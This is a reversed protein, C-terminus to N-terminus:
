PTEKSALALSTAAVLATSDPTAAVALVRFGAARALDATEVGICVAGFARVDISEAQGLSVLGRVTSGSTFIAAAIPGESSASRLLPRSTEPAERTRYAVVDDIVAGRARLAVASEDEALDGRVVLVRDGSDIPLEAALAVGSAHSPEFAVEIGHRELVRRTSPGIVAWSAARPEPASQAAAMLIARAGNASTVVVWRYTALHEVAAVTEAGSPLTEIEIAPVVVPALGANRLASVLEASQEAPRTVLV